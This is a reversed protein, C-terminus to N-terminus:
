KEFRRRVIESLAIGSVFPIKANKIEELDDDSMAKIMDRLKRMTPSEPDVKNIKGFEQRLRKIQESSFGEDVTLSIIEEALFDKFTKM